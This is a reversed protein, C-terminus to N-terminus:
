LPVLNVVPNAPTLEASGHGAPTRYHVFVREIAPFGAFLGLGATDLLDPRNCRFRYHARLDAGDTRGTSGAPLETELRTGALRCAAQTDFRLMADGASLNERALTLTEREAATRPAQEFGLLTVAPGVLEAQVEAGQVELRLHVVGPIHPPNSAPPAAQLCAALLVATILASTWVAAAHRGSLM